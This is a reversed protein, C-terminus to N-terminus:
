RAPSPKDLGPGSRRSGHGPSPGPRPYEHGPAYCGLDRLYGPAQGHPGYHPTRIVRAGLLELEDLHYAVLAPQPTHRGGPHAVHHYHRDVLALRLHLLLDEPGDHYPLPLGVAPCIPGPDLELVVCGDEDRFVPLQLAGLYPPGHGTLRGLPPGAYGPGGAHYDLYAMVTRLLARYNRRCLLEVRDEPPNFFDWIDKFYCTGDVVETHQLWWTLNGYMGYLEVTLPLAGAVAYMWDGWEGSATYNVPVEGREYPLGAEEGYARALEALVPEDPCPRHTYAWPYLVCAAGSHYSVALRIEQHALVLDKLARTEPESFPGPGVYDEAFPDPSGSDVGTANWMFGYNRNLDVGGPWDENLLGDGDNDLGEFGWSTANWWMYITGDGDLDEPPDEDVLGDGDDDVPRLNKRHWPNAESAEVGDPNLVPIVYFVVHDLLLAVAEDRGRSAERVLSWAIYLPVELSIRERAHHYGVILIGLKPGPSFEDTIRLVWITNGMWSRGIPLLEVLDPRYSNLAIIM